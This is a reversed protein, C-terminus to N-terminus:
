APVVILRTSGSSAVLLPVGFTLTPSVSGVTTGGDDIGAVGQAAISAADPPDTVTTGAPRVFLSPQYHVSVTTPWTLNDLSGGGPFSGILPPLADPYPLYCVFRGLDDAVTEAAGAAIGVRVVAWGAPSGSATWVEGRVVAMGAPAPRAPASALTTVVVAAQLVTVTRVIPLYRGQTDVLRTVFPRGPSPLSPTAGAGTEFDLLGPLHSFGLLASVPSRAATRSRGADGEPWATLVLGDAVPVRWVPDIFQCALTARLTGAELLRFGTSM